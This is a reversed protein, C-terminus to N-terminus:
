ATVLLQPVAVAVCITVTFANAVAPVMVPAALTHIPVGMVKLLTVVPPVHLLLAVLMAVTPDVPVTFPTDM